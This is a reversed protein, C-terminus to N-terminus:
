SVSVLSSQLYFLTGQLKATKHMDKGRDRTYLLAASFNFVGDVSAYLLFRPNYSRRPPPVTANSSHRQVVAVFFVLIGQRRRKEKTLFGRFSGGGLTCFIRKWKIQPFSFFPQLSTITDNLNAHAM